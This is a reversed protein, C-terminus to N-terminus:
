QIKETNDEHRASDSSVLSIIPLVLNPLHLNTFNDHITSNATNTSPKPIALQQKLGSQQSDRHYDFAWEMRRKENFM